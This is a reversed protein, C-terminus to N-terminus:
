FTKPTIILENLSVIETIVQVLRLRAYEIEKDLGCLLTHSKTDDDKIFSVTCYEQLAEIVKGCRLKVFCGNPKPTFGRKQLADVIYQYHDSEFHEFHDGSLGDEKDRLSFASPLIIGDQM